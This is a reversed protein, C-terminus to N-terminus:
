ELFVLVIAMVFLAAMALYFYVLQRKKAQLKGKHEKECAEDCFKDKYPIAKDCNICHRHQPLRDVM